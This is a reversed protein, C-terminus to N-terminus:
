TGTSAYRRIGLKWIGLCVPILGCIAFWPAFLAILSDTKGFHFAMPYYGVTALPIVFTLLYRIVSPYISAPYSAATRTAYFALVTLDSNKITWFAVAALILNILFNIIISAIILVVYLGLFSIDWDPIQSLGFAGIAFGEFINGMRKWDVKQLLLQPILGMPRVMLGDFRGTLLLEEFRHVGEGFIRYAGYGVEMISFLLAIEGISWGGIIPFARMVFYLLFFDSAMMLGNFVMEMWFNARYERQMKWSIGILSLIIQM